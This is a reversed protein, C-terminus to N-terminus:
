APLESAPSRKAGRSVKRTVSRGVGGLVVFGLAMAVWTPPEPVPTAAGGTFASSFGTSEITVGSAVGGGGDPFTVTGTFFTNGNFNLLTTEFLLALFDNDDFSNAAVAVFHASPEEVTAEEVGGVSNAMNFTFVPTKFSFDELAASTQDLVFFGTVSDDGHFPTALTGSFDYTRVIDARAGAAGLVAFLGAFGLSLLSLRM